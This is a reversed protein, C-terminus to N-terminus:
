RRQYQQHRQIQEADEFDNEAPFTIVAAFLQRRFFAGGTRKEVANEGGSSAVGQM